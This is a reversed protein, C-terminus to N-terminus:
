STKRECSSQDEALAAKCVPITENWCLVIRGCSPCNHEGRGVNGLPEDCCPSIWNNDVGVNEREYALAPKFEVPLNVVNSM